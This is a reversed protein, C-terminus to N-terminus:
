TYKILSADKEIFIADFNNDIIEQGKEIITKDELGLHKCFEEFNMIPNVLGRKPNLVLAGPYKGDM